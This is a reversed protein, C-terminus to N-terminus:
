SETQFWNKSLNIESRTQKQAVMNGGMVSQAM